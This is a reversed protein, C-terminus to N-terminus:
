EHLHHYYCIALVEEMTYHSYKNYKHSTCTIHNHHKVSVSCLMVYLNITVMSYENYLLACHRIQPQRHDQHKITSHM